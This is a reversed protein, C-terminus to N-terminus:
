AKARPFEEIHIEGKRGVYVARRGTLFVRYAVTGAAMTRKLFEPYRIEDAQAARIASVLATESFEEAVRAPALTMKETHTDGNPMYFTDVGSILDAHYSEVGVEMLAGVVEPFRLNGAESGELTKRMVETDMKM